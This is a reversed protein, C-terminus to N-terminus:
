VSADSSESRSHVRSVRFDAEMLIDAWCDGLGVPDVEVILDNKNDAHAEIFRKVDDRSIANFRITTPAFAQSSMAPKGRVQYFAVLLAPFRESKPSPEPLLKDGENNQPALMGYCTLDILTSLDM